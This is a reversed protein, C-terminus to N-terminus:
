ENDLNWLWGRDMRFRKLNHRIHNQSPDADLSSEWAEIAALDEGSLAYILALNNLITVNEPHQARLELFIDRAEGVRGRESLIVGYNIRAELHNPHIRLLRIIDSEAQGFERMQLYVLSRNLLAETNDPYDTLVETLLQLAGVLRGCRRKSAALGIRTSVSAPSIDLARQFEVMAQDCRNEQLLAYGLAERQRGLAHNYDDVARFAEVAEHFRNQRILANGLNHWAPYFGRDIAIAARATREAESYHQQTLYIGSLNSLILPNSPAIAESEGLRSFGELPNGMQFSWEGQIMRRKAKLARGHFDLFHDSEDWGRERFGEWSPDIMLEVGRCVALRYVLGSIKMAAEPLGPIDMSVTTMVPTEWRETVARYLSTGKYDVDMLIDKRYAMVHDLYFFVFPSSWGQTVLVAGADVSNYINIGWDYATWSRSRDNFWYGRVLPIVWAMLMLVRSVVRGRLPDWRDACRVVKETGAAFCIFIPLYSQIYYVEIDIIRYTLFFVAVSAFYLGSVWALIRYSRILVLIGFGALILPLVSAQLTLKDWYLLINSYLDDLSANFMMNRFQRGSIHFWFGDMTHCIIWRIACDAKSRIPFYILQSGGLIGAGIGLMVARFRHTRLPYRSTAPFVLLAPVAFVALLHHTVAFGCVFAFLLWDRLTLRRHLRGGIYLLLTLCSVHLAYVEQINSQSWITFSFAMFLSTAASPVLSFYVHLFFYFFLVACSTALASGIATRFAISGFPVSLQMFRMLQCYAPYGTPHPIGLVYASATMEGCDATYVEPCSTTMYVFFSTAVIFVATLARVRDSQDRKERIM